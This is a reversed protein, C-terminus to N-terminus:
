SGAAGASATTTTTTYPANLVANAGALISACDPHKPDGFYHITDKVFAAYWRINVANEGIGRIDQATTLGLNALAAHEPTEPAPEYAPNRLAAAIVASEHPLIGHYGYREYWYNWHPPDAPYSKFTEAQCKTDAWQPPLRNDWTPHHVRRPGTLIIETTATTTITLPANLVANAGALIDACDPHNPNGRLTIKEKLWLAYWRVDAAGEGIDRIDQATTLGLNALAKRERPGTAKYYPNQLAEAIVWSEDPLTLHGGTLGWWFDWSPPDTLVRPRFTNHCETAKIGDWTSPLRNDWTPHSVRDPAPPRTVLTFPATTTTTTTEAQGAALGPEPPPALTTDTVGVGNENAGSVANSAPATTDTVALTTTPTNTEAANLASAM